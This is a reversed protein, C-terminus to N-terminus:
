SLVALIDSENVIFYEVGNVKVESYGYKSFMVKDGIKVSVPIRKEGDEDWKGPGVAVVKGQEPKEKATDPIIIGSLTRSGAEEASLPKIVVRDSLPRISVGTNTQVSTKTSSTKKTKAM